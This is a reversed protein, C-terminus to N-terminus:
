LFFATVIAALAWLAAFGGWKIMRYKKKDVPLEGVLKGTQGNVAFPFVQDGYCVNLLWVPLMAYEVDGHALRVGSTQEAVTTYGAVTARLAAEASTKMRENARPACEQPQQDRCDAQYGALYGADFRRCSAYEFPEVAETLVNEVRKIADVPVRDFTVRACREVYYHSTDTIHWDGRTYSRVRTARYTARADAECDFLFYPVYLGTVDEVRCARRFDAPLLPKKEFHARLTKEAQERTISFPIIVDPRLGGEFNEPMMANNGCYVCRTAATTKDTVISAGCGPCTYARMNAAEEAGFQATHEANQWNLEYGGAENEALIEYLAQMDEPKYEAGCNECRLADAQWVLPASCQPCQYTHISM